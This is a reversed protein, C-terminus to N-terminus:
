TFCDIIMHPFFHSLIFEFCGVVDILVILILWFFDFVVEKTCAHVLPFGSGVELFDEVPESFLFVREVNM